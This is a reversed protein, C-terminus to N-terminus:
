KIKERLELEYDFLLTISHYSGYKFKSICMKGILIYTNVLKRLVSNYGDVVGFLVVEESLQIQVNQVTLLKQEIHTWLTRSVQCSFFFHEIYDTTNCYPCRDSETVGMKSLLICTPYINHLIKWQLVRLRTEKVTDFALNWLKSNIEINIYKSNWFQVSCPTKWKHKTILQRIKTSTLVSIEHNHFSPSNCHHEPEVVQKWPGPIANEVVNYQLLLGPSPGLKEEIEAFSMFHLNNYLDGVTIIGKKQWNSFTLVKGQYRIITNNWISQNKIKEPPINEINNISQHNLWSIITKKWFQLKVKDLGIFERCQVNSKLAALNPGCQSLYFLPLVAWYAESNRWLRSLWAISFAHQMDTINIMDLGGDETGSCVVNRRVKEFARRNNCRKKWIFKFFLTNIEKLTAEPLCIAQMLYIFQSLLFTKVIHIKGIISLDRKEWSKILRKVKQIRGEWNDNIASACIRNSFIVGLVKITPNVLKWKLGAVERKSDKDRGLWMAETKKKNLTLGSFKSYQNVLTLTNLVDNQDRMFLTTDDAYQLIKLSIETTPDRSPLQIGAIRNSQRIKLALLEVALIFALPSFPCGQRIGSDVNFYATKWGCHSVCSVTKNTITKVWQQFTEGFGFLDFVKCLFKKNVSDFAKAYDLAIIAGTDNNFGVFEIVDDITRIITSINRGKIYGVQNENIINKIVTQMRNALVKTILKYDTNTLTIPRWNNLEDRPLQKGKHFLTIIGQRQLASLSSSEFASTLSELVLNKIQEWFHKYFHPTLGDSGPSSAPNLQILAHELEMLTVPGECAARERESLQPIDLTDCFRELDDTVATLDFKKSYVQSFYQHQLSLINNQDLHLHGNSDKLATIVKTSANAKELNLFYKTSKEGEEIWRIRSRVQAGQALQLSYLDLALKTNKMGELAAMNNPDISLITEYSKLKTRLLKQDNLKFKAQKKSFDITTEKIKVKCLDWRQQATLDQPGNEVDLIVKKIIEVYTASKLLSENFKWHSKGRKITDLHLDISVGNHDTNPVPLIECALVHGLLQDTTLIYDLRRAIFPNSKCWTYQKSMGHLVRWTDYVDMNSLADNFREVLRPDHHNGSIIDLNNNLVLNFDGAIVTCENGELGNVLMELQALFDAKEGDNNPAHVNVVNLKKANYVFSISLVRETSIQLQSCEINSNRKVLIVLGKSHVTGYSAFVDGGWQKSWIDFDKEVM